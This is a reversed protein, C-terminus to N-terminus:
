PAPGPRAIGRLSALRERAPAFGPEAEVAEELCAAARASDGRAEHVLGLNFWAPASSRERALAAEFLPIARELDGQRALVIGLGLYPAALRDNLGRAREFGERAREWRGAELDLEAAAIRYRPNGPAAAAAREFSRLADDARGAERDLRALSEFGYATAHASVPCSELLREFRRRAKGSDANVALWSATHLASAGALLLAADALRAREPLSRALSAATWLLLPLAAFAFADWDRFPGVEPNAVLTFLVPFVAAALLFAPDADRGARPRVLLIGLAAPAALVYQHFLDAFHAPSLLRYGQRFTPEAVLPL